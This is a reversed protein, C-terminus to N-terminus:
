QEIWEIKEEITSCRKGAPIDGKPLGLYYFGLVLDKDSLGFAKKTEDKYTIGGSSWYGCVGYATATLAINQVACAVAEVEEIEPIREIEQRKMLIAIIHSSQTCNVQMKDLKAPNYKEKPTTEKYLSTLLELLKLRGEGCYIKFRWPETKGHNPAWNASEMIKTVIEKEIEEGSYSHPKITRRHQIVKELTEITSQTSKMKEEL